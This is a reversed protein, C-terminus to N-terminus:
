TLWEAPVEQPLTYGAALLQEAYNQRLGVAEQRGDRQWSRLIGEVYDWRKKDRQVSILIAEVLWACPYRKEALKIRRTLAPTLPGIHEEYVALPNDGAQGEGKQKVEEKDKEEHSPLPEPLGSGSGNGAPNGSGPPQQAEGSSVNARVFGCMKKDSWYPSTEILGRGGKVHIRWRDIWGAPAPHRSPAMWESGIQYKWWRIVQGFRLGDVEYAHVKGALTFAELMALVESAPLDDAPFLLSKMLRGNLLFRGQDDAGKLILMMWGLRARDDLDIFWPDSMIQSDLNRAM